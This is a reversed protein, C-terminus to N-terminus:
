KLKEMIMKLFIGYYEDFNVEDLLWHFTGLQKNSMSGILSEFKEHINCYEESREWCDYSCFGIEEPFCSGCSSCHHYDKNCQKCKM